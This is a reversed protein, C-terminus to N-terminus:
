FNWLIYGWSLNMFRHRKMGMMDGDFIVMKNFMGLFIESLKMHWTDHMGWPGQVIGIYIRLDLSDIGYFDGGSGHGFVDPKDTASSWSPTIRSQLM